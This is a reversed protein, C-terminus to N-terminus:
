VAYDKKREKKKFYMKNEREVRLFPKDDSLAEGRNPTSEITLNFLHEQFYFAKPM